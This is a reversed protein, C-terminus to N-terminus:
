KTILFKNKPLTKKLGLQMLTSNITNILAKCGAETLGEVFPMTTKGDKLWLKRRDNGHEDVRKEKPLPPHVQNVKHPTNQKNQM